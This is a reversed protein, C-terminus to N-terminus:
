YDVLVFGTVDDVDLERAVSWVHEWEESSTHTRATQIYSEFSKLASPELLAHKTYDLRGQVFGLLRAAKRWEGRLAAVGGLGVMTWIVVGGNTNTVDDVSQLLEVSERFRQLAAEHEGKSLLTHGINNIMNAASGDAGLDRFIAGAQEYQVIADEYNGMEYELEGLSNYFLAIRWKNELKQAVKLSQEALSRASVYDKMDQATWGLVTLTQGINAEDGLEQFITLSEQLADRSQDLEGIFRANAGIARLTLAEGWKYGAERSLALSEQRLADAIAGQASGALTLLLDSVLAKNNIAKAMRLGEEAYGSSQENNETRLALRAAVQLAKARILAGPSDESAPPPGIALLSQLLQLGQRWYNRIDWFLWLASALRLGKDRQLSDRCYLIASQINDHEEELKALFEIQKPGRLHPEALEALATFHALHSERLSPMEGCEELKEWAYERITELMTFRPEREGSSPYEERLLNSSVLSGLGARVDLTAEDPADKCVAMAAAESSGGAFVSLRSFVTRDHADLLEYSWEITDRLTQQRAPLNRAGGTLTKLRSQLRNLLTQPSFLAVRAAALEIALPLGDVAQCIQAVAQLNKSSLSFGPKAAQARDGFLRLSDYRALEEFAKSGKAGPVPMTPVAFSYEGYVRLLRRSTVLIKLRPSAELLEAAAASASAVHEFNDLVLLIEKERLYSKMAELLPLNPIEKVGLVQAVRSIVLDPDSISALPVFYVGHEFEDILNASVQLGLRTKGTGGPGTLTLWRTESRRLLASAAQLEKERGIFATAQAPLNNPRADLTRLPPYEAPLGPGVLQYIREPHSLDKLRREGMDRIEAGEPLRGFVLEYTAQSLLTQGGYGASLIRAIRSVPPGFYDGNWTDPTGTHLAMRVRLKGVESPWTETHLALQATLAAQLADIPSTFSTCFADGVMKFVYGGHQQISSRMISDHRHLAAKMQQPYKEWRKTSGEVDTFLFTITGIPLTGM